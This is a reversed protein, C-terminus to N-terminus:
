VKGDRYLYWIPLTLPARGPDDIALLGVHVDALFAEREGQTMAGSAAMSSRPDASEASRVLLTVDPAADRDRGYAALATEHIDFSFATDPGNDPILTTSIAPIPGPGNAAIISASRPASTTRTSRAWATVPLKSRCFRSIRLRPRRLMPTSRFFASPTSVTIFSTSCASASMSPNRGPTASRSPM